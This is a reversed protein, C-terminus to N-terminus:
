INPIYLVYILLYSYLLLNNYRKYDTQNPCASDFFGFQYIYVYNYKNKHFIFMGKDKTPHVIALMLQNECLQECVWKTHKSNHVFLFLEIKSMCKGKLICKNLCIANIVSHLANYEAFSPDGVTVECFLTYRKRTLEFLEEIKGHSDIDFNYPMKQKDPWFKALMTSDLTFKPKEFLSHHEFKVIIDFKFSDSNKRITDAKKQLFIQHWMRDRVQKCDKINYKVWQTEICEGGCKQTTCKSCFSSWECKGNRCWVLGNTSLTM